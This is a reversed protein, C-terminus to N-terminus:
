FDKVVKKLERVPAEKRPKREEEASSSAKVSKLAKVARGKSVNGTTHVADVFVFNTDDNTERSNGLKEQSLVALRGAKDVKSPCAQYPTFRKPESSKKFKEIGWKM